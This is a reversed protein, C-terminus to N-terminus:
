LVIKAKGHYPHEKAYRVAESHLEEPSKKDFYDRQWKTYDFKERMVTAIFHEAEVLGMNDVLCQMGRSLVEVTTMEM